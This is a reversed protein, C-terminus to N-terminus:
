LFVIHYVGYFRSYDISPVPFDHFFHPMTAHEVVQSTFGFFRNHHQCLGWHVWWLITLLNSLDHKLRKPHFSQMNTHLRNHREVRIPTDRLRIRQLLFNSQGSSNKIRTMTNSMNNRNVRATYNTTADPMDWECAFFYSIKDLFEELVSSFLDRGLILDAHCLLYLFLIGIATLVQCRLHRFEILLLFFIPLYNLRLFKFFIFNLIRSLNPHIRIRNLNPILLKQSWLHEEM